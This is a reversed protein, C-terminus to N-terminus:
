CGGGRGIVIRGDTRTVSTDDSCGSTDSYSINSIGKEDKQVTMSHNEDIAKELKSTPYEPYAKAFAEMEGFAKLLLFGEQMTCSKPLTVYTSSGEYYGDDDVIIDSEFKLQTKFWEPTDEIKSKSTIKRPPGLL